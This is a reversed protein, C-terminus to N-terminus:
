VFRDRHIEVAQVLLQEIANLAAALREDRVRDDVAAVHEAGADDIEVGRLPIHLLQRFDHRPESSGDVCAQARVCRDDNGSCSLTLSVFRRRWGYCSSRTRPGTPTSSSIWSRRSM